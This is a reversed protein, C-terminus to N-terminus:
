RETIPTTSAARRSLPWAWAKELVEIAERLSPNSIALVGRTGSGAAGNTEGTDSTLGAAREGILM